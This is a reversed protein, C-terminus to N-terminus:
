VLNIKAEDIALDAAFNHSMNRITRQSLINEIYVTKNKFKPFVDNYNDLCKQSVLVITDLKSYAKDEVIPKLNAGKWDVHVWGIERKSKDEAGCLCEAM